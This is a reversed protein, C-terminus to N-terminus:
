PASEECLRDLADLAAALQARDAPELERIRAALWATKRRRTEAILAAGAKTTRVRSVRRDEPDTRRELLGEAELKAVVKTISPPAVREHEALEGLTLPGRNGVAALASLQSPTLGSSSEQRLRRALRTASLRLRAAIEAEDSRGPTAKATATRAPVAPM